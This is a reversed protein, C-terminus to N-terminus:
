AARMPKASHTLASTPRLAFRLACFLVFCSGASTASVGSISSRRQPARADRRSEGRADRQRASRPPAPWPARPALGHAAELEGPCRKSELRRIVPAGGGGRAPRTASYARAGPRIRLGACTRRKDHAGGSSRVRSASTSTSDTTRTTPELELELDLRRCRQPEWDNSSGRGRQRDHARASNQWVLFPAHAPRGRRRRTGAQARGTVARRGSGRARRRRARSGIALAAARGDLGRRFAM